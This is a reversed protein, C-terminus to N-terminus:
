ELTIYFEIRRYTTKGIGEVNLLEKKDTFGGHEERYEIISQAQNEKLSSLALLEEKSATNINVRHFDMAEIEQATYYRPERGHVYIEAGVVTFIGILGIILIITGNKFLKM